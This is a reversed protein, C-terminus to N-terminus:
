EVRFQQKGGIKEELEFVIGGPKTKFYGWHMGDQMGGAVMQGGKKQLNSAMEQWNSVSFAIHNIGEGKAEISQSWFSRGEVPQILELIIPELKTFAVKIKCPEGAITELWDKDLTQEVIHWPGLGWLSSLFQTTKELDKVVMNIHYLDPQAATNAKPPTVVPKTGELLEELEVIIGGPWTEWYTYHRGREAVICMVMRGGKAELNSALEDWNTVSFAIHHLGEGHTELYNAWITKGELPQILELLTPGLWAGALRIKGPESVIMQERRLLHESDQWPGIGWMSTLFKTTEEVDEVVACVHYLSPLSRSSIDATM